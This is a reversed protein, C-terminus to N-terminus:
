LHQLFAHGVKHLDFRKYSYSSSIVPVNEHFVSSYNTAVPVVEQLSTIQVKTFCAGTPKINGRGCMELTLAANEM